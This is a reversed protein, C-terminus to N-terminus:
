LYRHAQVLVLCGWGPFPDDGHSSNVMV